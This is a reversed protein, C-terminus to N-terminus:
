DDVASLAKEQRLTLVRTTSPRRHEPDERVLVLDSERIRDVRWSAEIEGLQADGVREPRGVLEGPTVVWGHGRPDVLMARPTGIRTVVGVLKLEDLPFRRARTLRTDGPRTPIFAPPRFPDRSDASEELARDPIEVLPRVAAPAENASEAAPMPLAPPADQGSPPPRPATEAACGALLAALSLAVLAPFRLM